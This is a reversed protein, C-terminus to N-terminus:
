TGAMLHMTATPRLRLLEDLDGRDVVLADLDHKVVASTTRSGGDLLSIEGFFEGPGVNEFLIREGEDNKFFLEVTGACVVYLADGPEGHQYIVHGESLKIVDIREALVARERDDLDAFLPVKALM